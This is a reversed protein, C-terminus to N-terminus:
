VQFHHIGPVDTTLLVDENSRVNENTGMHKHNSILSGLDVDPILNHQTRLNLQNRSVMPKVIRCPWDFIRAISGYAVNPDFAVYPNSGVCHQKPPNMYASAGDNTGTGHYGLVDTGTLYPSAIRGSLESPSEVRAHRQAWSTPTSISFHM